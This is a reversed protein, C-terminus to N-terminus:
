RDDADEMSIVRFHIPEALTDGYYAMERAMWERGLSTARDESHPSTASIRRYIRGSTGVAVAEVANPMTAGIYTPFANGHTERSVKGLLGSVATADIHMRRKPGLM